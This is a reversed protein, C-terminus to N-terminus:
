CVPPSEGLSTCVPEIVADILGDASRRIDSNEKGIPTIVFCNKNSESVVEEERKKRSSSIAKSNEKLKNM